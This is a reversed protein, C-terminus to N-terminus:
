WSFVCSNKQLETLNGYVYFLFRLGIVSIFMGPERKKLKKREKKLNYNCYKDRGKEGDLGKWM